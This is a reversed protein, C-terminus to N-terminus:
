CIYLLDNYVNSIHNLTEIGFVAILESIKRVINKLQTYNIYVTIM